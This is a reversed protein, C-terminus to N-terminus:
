QSQQLYAAGQASFPVTIVEKDDKWVYWIENVFRVDDRAILTLYQGDLDLGFGTFLHFHFPRLVILWHLLVIADFENCFRTVVGVFEYVKQFDLCTRKHGRM